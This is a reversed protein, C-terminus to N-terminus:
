NLTLLDVNKGNNDSNLKCNRFYKRFNNIQGFTFNTLKTLEDLNQFTNNDIFEKSNNKNNENEDFSM